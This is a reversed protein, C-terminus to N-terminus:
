RSCSVVLSGDRKRKLAITASSSTGDASGTVGHGPM